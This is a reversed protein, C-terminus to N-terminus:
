QRGFTTRYATEQDQNIDGRGITRLEFRQRHAQGEQIVIAAPWNGEKERRRELFFILKFRVLVRERQELLPSVESLEVVVAEM